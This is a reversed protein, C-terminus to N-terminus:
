FSPEFQIDSFLSKTVSYHIFTSFMTNIDAIEFFTEISVPVPFM